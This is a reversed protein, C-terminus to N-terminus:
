QLDILADVDFLGGDIPAVADGTAYIDFGAYGAQRLLERPTSRGLDRARPELRYRAHDM